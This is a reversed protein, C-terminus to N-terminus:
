CNAHAENVVRLGVWGGQHLYSHLQMIWVAYALAAGESPPRTGVSCTARFVMKCDSQPECIAAYMAVMLRSTRPTSQWAPWAGVGVSVRGVVGSM